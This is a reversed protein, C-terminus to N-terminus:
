LVHACLDAQGLIVLRYRTVQALRIQALDVSVRETDDEYIHESSVVKEFRAM